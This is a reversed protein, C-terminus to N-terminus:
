PLAVLTELKLTDRQIKVTAKNVQTKTKQQQGAVNM